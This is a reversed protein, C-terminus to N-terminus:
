ILSVFKFAPTENWCCLCLGSNIKNEENSRYTGGSIAPSSRWILTLRSWNSSAMARAGPLPNHSNQSVCCRRKTWSHALRPGRPPPRCRTPKPFAPLASSAPTTRAPLRHLDQHLCSPSNTGIDYQIGRVERAPFWVYDTTHWLSIWLKHARGGLSGEGEVGYRPLPCRSIKFCPHRPYWILYGNPTQSSVMCPHWILHFFSDKNYIRCRTIKKSNEFVPYFDSSKEKKEM